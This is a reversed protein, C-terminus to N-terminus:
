SARHTLPLRVEAVTGGGERPRVTAWGGQAEVMQRVLHLGLGVGGFRRGDGSDAQWYRAFVHEAHAPDVGIGRDAVRIWAWTEDAGASLVIEGGAPSYKAANTLLETVVVDLMARDGLVLPLEDPVEIRLVHHTELENLGLTVQRLAGPLDYPAPHATLTEAQTRAGLLLRDMLAALDATRQQIVELGALRDSEDLDNWRETLTEAFGKVVTLPTRLEHSTMAVFLESEEQIGRVAIASAAIGALVRLVTLQDLDLVVEEAEFFLYLGGHAQGLSRARCVVVRSWGRDALADTAPTVFEDWAADDVTLESGLLRDLITGAVPYTLGLAAAAAGSTARICQQDGTLEVFMGGAAGTFAVATEVLVELVEETPAGSNIQETIALMRELFGPPDSM